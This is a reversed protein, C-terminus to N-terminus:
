ELKSFAENKSQVPQTQGAAVDIGVFECRDQFWKCNKSNLAAPHHKIVYLVTRFYNLLQEATSGYLLVDVVIIKSAVNKFGREKALTDWEMHLKMTMALFTPAANLSGMPM